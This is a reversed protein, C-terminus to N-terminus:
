PRDRYGLQWLVRAMDRAQQTIVAEDARWDCAHLIEHILIELRHQGSLRSDVRIEKNVKTPEDCYGWVKSRGLRDFVLRWRKGLLTIRLVVPVMRTM